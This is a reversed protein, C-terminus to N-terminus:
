FNVNLGVIHRDEASYPEVVFAYDVGFRLSGFGKYYSFGLSPNVPFDSNSINVQDIGGRLYFDSIVNYELGARIINTGANSNEFEASAILGLHANYYSVGIKKL